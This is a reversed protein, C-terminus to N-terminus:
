IGDDVWDYTTDGFVRVELFDNASVGPIADDAITTLYIYNPDLRLLRVFPAVVEQADDTAPLVFVVSFGAQVLAEDAASGGFAVYAYPPTTTGRRILPMDLEDLIAEMDTRITMQAGRKRGAM